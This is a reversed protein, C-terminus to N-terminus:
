QPPLYPTPDSVGARNLADTFKQVVSPVTHFPPGNIDNIPQRILPAVERVNANEPTAHTYGELLLDQAAM